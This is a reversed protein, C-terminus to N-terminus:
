QTIPPLGRYRIRVKVVGATYTGGVSKATIYNSQTTAASTSGIYAGAYTSGTTLITKQGATTVSANIMGAVFATDSITTVPPYTNQGITVYTGSTLYGLGVSFATASGVTMGVDTEVEVEEIFTQTGTPFYTNLDQVTATTTLNALNLTVEIERTDGYSLYDGANAAVTKQPGFQRVMGDGDIWSGM